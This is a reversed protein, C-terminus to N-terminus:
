ANKVRLARRFMASVVRRFTESKPLPPIGDAFLTVAGVTFFSGARFCALGAAGHAGHLLGCGEDSPKRLGALAVDGGDPPLVGRETLHDALQARRPYPNGVPKGDGRRSVAFEDIAVSEAGANRLLEGSEPLVPPVERNDSLGDPVHDEAPFKGGRDGGGDRLGAPLHVPPAPVLDAADGHPATGRGLVERFRAERTLLFCVQIDVALDRQQIRASLAVGGQEGVPRDDVPPVVSVVVHM